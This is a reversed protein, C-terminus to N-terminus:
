IMGLKWFVWFAFLVTLVIAALIEIYFWPSEFYWPTPVPTPTPKPTITVVVTKVVEVTQKVVVVEPTPTPVFLNGGSYKTTLVPKEQGEPMDYVWRPVTAYIDSDPGRVTIFHEGVPTENYDIPISVLFTRMYGPDAGEALTHFTNALKNKETLKNEDLFAFIVSGNALNTYGRIQWFFGNSNEIEDISAIELYPSQVAFNLVSMDDDTSKNIWETFRGQLISPVLGPNDKNGGIEINEVGKFPSEIHYTTSPYSNAAQVLRAELITNAGAEEFIIKYMGVGLSETQKGSLTLVGNVVPVDLLMDREGFIWVKVEGKPNIIDPSTTLDYILPDGQAVLIDSIRVDKLKYPDEAIITVAPTENTYNAVLTPTVNVKVAEVYFAVLNAGREEYPAWQDWEGTPFVEPDILIHKTFSSVDVVKGTKVHMVKSQWGAVLSLDITEGWYVTDMQGITRTTANGMPAKIAVPAITPVVTETSIATSIQVFFFLLILASVLIIAISKLDRM